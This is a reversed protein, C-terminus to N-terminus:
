MDEPRDVTTIRLRLEAVWADKAARDPCRLLLKLDKKEGETFVVVIDNGGQQAEQHTATTPATVLRTTAAAVPIAGLAKKADQDEHYTLEGGVPLRFWRKKWNKAGMASKGVAFKEMWGSRDAPQPPPTAAREKPPEEEAAEETAAEEGGAAHEEAPKAEPEAADDRVPEDAVAADEPPQEEEAPEQAPQEEAAPAPEEDPPPAAAEEEKPPEEAPPADEIARTTGNLDDLLAQADRLVRSRATMARKRTTGDGQRMPEFYAWQSHRPGMFGTLQQARRATTQTQLSLYREPVDNTQQIRTLARQRAQSEAERQFSVSPRLAAM